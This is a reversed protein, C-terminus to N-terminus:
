KKEPIVTKETADERGVIGIALSAILMAISLFVIYAYDGLNTMVGQTKLYKTLDNGIPMFPKYFTVLLGAVSQLWGPYSQTSDNLGIEAFPMLCSVLITILALVSVVSALITFHSRNM